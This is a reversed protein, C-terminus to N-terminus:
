PCLLSCNGRVHIQLYWVRMQGAVRIQRPPSSKARYLMKRKDLRKERKAVLGIVTLRQDKRLMVIRCLPKRQVLIYGIDIAWKLTLASSHMSM